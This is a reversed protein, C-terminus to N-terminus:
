FFLLPRYVHHYFFITKITKAWKIWTLPTWLLMPGWQCENYPCYYNMLTEKTNQLLFFPVPKSLSLLFLTKKMGNHQKKCVSFYSNSFVLKILLCCLCLYLQVLINICLLIMERAHEEKRLNSAVESCFSQFLSGQVAIRSGRCFDARKVSCLLTNYHINLSLM